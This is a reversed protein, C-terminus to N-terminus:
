IGSMSATIASLAREASPIRAAAASTARKRALCNVTVATLADRQNRLLPRGSETFNYSLKPDIEGNQAGCKFTPKAANSLRVCRGILRGYGALLRRRVAQHLAWFGVNAAQEHSTCNTVTSKSITM